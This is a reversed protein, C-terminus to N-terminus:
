SPRWPEPVFFNCYIIGFVAEITYFSRSKTSIAFNLYKTSFVAEGGEAKVLSAHFLLLKIPMANSSAHSECNSAMGVSQAM